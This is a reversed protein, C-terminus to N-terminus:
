AVPVPAPIALGARALLREYTALTLDICRQQDFVKLAKMRAASGLREREAADTALRAIAATLALEDRVPVLLGTIGDDIIQRCGRIDTAVVPVGMAAAEMPTLPFGERHSALVLIDMGAYLRVLDDRHGLFRVGASVAARRDADTLSDAKDPEDPGVVAMRVQPCRSQVSAAAQFAEAYGKERVLRGVLGVVVDDDANAGLERRALARDAPPVTGPDFQELDIGLGAELLVLRDGPVRLRRLTRVDEPSAVLEAQSCTAALREPAYVAIRKLWPDGPLAYLGHVTNVVVPVRALRAALRGYIGAKPTHTHVITPDTRRFLAVLEVLARVDEVPAMTRTAHALPVHEIGRRTLAGIHSGPASAGVVRYGAAAIAQLQPGLLLELSMDVTTVHVVTPTGTMM